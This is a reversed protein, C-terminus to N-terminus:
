KKIRKVKTLVEEEIEKYKLYDNSPKPTMLTTDLWKKAFYVTPIAMLGLAGVKEVPQLNTFIPVTMGVVSVLSATTYLKFKRTYSEQVRVENLVDKHSNESNLDYIKNTNEIVTENFSNYIILDNIGIYKSKTKEKGIKNEM